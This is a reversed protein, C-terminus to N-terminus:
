VNAARAARQSEELQRNGSQKAEHARGARQENEGTKYWSDKFYSLKADTPM